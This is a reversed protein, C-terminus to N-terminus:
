VCMKSVTYHFFFFTWSNYQEWQDTSKLFAITDVIDIVDPSHKCGTNAVKVNAWQQSEKSSKIYYM